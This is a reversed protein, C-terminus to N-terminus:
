AVWNRVLINVPHITDSMDLNVLKLCNYNLIDGCDGCIRFGIFITIALWLIAISDPRNTQFNLWVPREDTEQWACRARPDPRQPGMGVPAGPM